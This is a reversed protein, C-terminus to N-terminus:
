AALRYHSQTAAFNGPALRYKRQEWECILRRLPELSPLGVTIRLFVTDTGHGRDERWVWDDAGLPVFHAKPSRFPTAASSGFDTMPYFADDHHEFLLNRFRM